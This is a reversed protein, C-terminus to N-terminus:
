SHIFTYITKQIADSIKLYADSDLNALSVRFRWKTAGFGLGPLLVVKYNKALHFVFELYHHNLEIKDRAHKGYLKEAIELVPILKYYNTAKEDFIPMIKKGNVHSYFKSYLNEMRKKLIAQIAKKYTLHTDHMFYFLFLAMIAQQPTSLGGTHAEAVQRSDLVLREMFTLKDPTTSAIEYRKTLHKKTDPNLGYLLNNMRNKKHLMTLGLRWGTVGFYKSLSFIEITNRPCTEMFSNYKDTFPAYVNDSVIILDKRITNVIKGIDQINQRPLSYEGPNSPNVMFLAKIDKNKLKNIQEDDLSYQKQPNGKLEVIKLGYQQLKPLELYPSFIPTIIAIKDGKKLLKNINLTNFVYMIGAAAGETAFYEFDDPRVSAVGVRTRDVRGSDVNGVSTGGFILKFMFDHAVFETHPQIRPPSPYFCGLMSLVLDYYLQNPTKYPKGSKSLYRLYDMLYKKIKPTSSTDNLIENELAKRYNFDTPKPYIVLDEEKSDKIKHTLHICAHQLHIFVDRVFYNLFNPNGRGANLMKSPDPSSAIQILNNKLEFPSLLEYKSYKSNKNLNLNTRRIMMKKKMMKRTINKRTINKRTKKSQKESMKRKINKGKSNM